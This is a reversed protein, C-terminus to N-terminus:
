SPDPYGRCTVFSACSRSAIPANPLAPPRGDPSSRKPVRLLCPGCCLALAQRAALLGSGIGAWAQARAGASISSIHCVAGSRMGMGGGASQTLLSGIAGTKAPPQVVPRYSPISGLYQVTNRRARRGVHAAGGGPPHDAVGSRSERACRSCDSVGAGGAACATFWVGVKVRARLDAVPTKVWYLFLLRRLLGGGGMAGHAARTV